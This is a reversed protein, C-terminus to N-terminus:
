VVRYRRFLLYMVIWSCLVIVCFAPFGWWADLGPLDVFNM